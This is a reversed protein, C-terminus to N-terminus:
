GLLVKLLKDFLEGFTYVTFILPLFPVLLFLMSSILKKRNIPVSQSEKISQAYSGNIDAMSSNDLSGLIHEDKPMEGSMWKLKYLINHRQLLEGFNYIGSIKSRILVPIFFLLPMYIILPMIIVFALITLYYTDLPQSEYIIEMGLVASLIAGFSMAVFGFLYPVINLYELGSMQDAHTAEINLQLRSFKIASYFWLFWRWLWRFMLLQFIPFSIFLYYSGAFSFDINSNAVVYNWKSKQFNPDSFDLYISFTILFLFIIEPLFRNSLRILKDVINDFVSLDKEFVLKRTHNIYSDLANDVINEVLIVFPIVVLFRTHTLFDEIFNIEVKENIFSNEFISLILLPLWTVVAAIIARNLCTSNVSIKSYLKLLLNNVLGGSCLGYKKNQDLEDNFIM